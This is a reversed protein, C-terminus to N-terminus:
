STQNMLMNGNTRSATPNMTMPRFPPHSGFHVGAGAAHAAVGERHILKEIAEFRLDPFDVLAAAVDRWHLVRRRELGAEMEPDFATGALSDHFLAGRARFHTM